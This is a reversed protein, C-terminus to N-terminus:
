DILLKKLLSKQEATLRLNAALSDKNELLKKNVEAIKNKREIALKKCRARYIKVSKADRLIQRAFKMKLNNIKSKSLDEKDLLKILEDPSDISIIENLQADTYINNKGSMYGSFPYYTLMKKITQKSISNM